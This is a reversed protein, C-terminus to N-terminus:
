VNTVNERLLNRLSFTFGGGVPGVYNIDWKFKGGSVGEVSRNGFDTLISRQGKVPKAQALPKASGVKTVLTKLYNAPIAFNLNQGNRITLVSVGIVEGKGNLVPGGSSGPSLPATIQILKDSGVPNFAVSSEM